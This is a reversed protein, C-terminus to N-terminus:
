RLGPCRRAEEVDAASIAPEQELHSSTTPNDFADLWVRPGDLYGAPGSEFDMLAHEGIRFELGGREVCHGQVM